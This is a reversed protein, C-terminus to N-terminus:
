IIRSEVLAVRVIKNLKAAKASTEPRAWVASLELGVFTVPLPFNVAETM